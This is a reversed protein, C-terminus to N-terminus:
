GHNENGYYITGKKLLNGTDMRELMVGIESGTM